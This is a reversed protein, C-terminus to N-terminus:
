GGQPAEATVVDPEEPVSESPIARLTTLHEDGYPTLTWYTATDKVSRNRKSKTILGLARMQIILTGFDGQPLDVKTSVLATVTEGREEVAERVRNQVEPAFRNDLWDRIRTRMVQESAEDLLDPGVCGFLDDWTIGEGLQGTWNTSEYIRMEPTRVQVTYPIRFTVPEAGKALRHAEPPPGSRAAGLEHEMEVVRKRLENLEALAETSTQVDGRIWGVAPYTQRFNALSLAVKGALDESGLWYKVHKKREVKERFRKLKERAQEDKESDKLKLDEPSKHLFAMVPKKRAEAYDYEKETYSLETGPDMTGYKGGIVLLYYDCSDIVRTILTWADDDAAPFLEMGSPIADMQLLSSVVAAREDQLDLFTSSVFVQFRREDVPAIIVRAAGEHREVPRM